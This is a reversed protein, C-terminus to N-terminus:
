CDPNRNARCFLKMLTGFCGNNPSSGKVGGDACDALDNSYCTCCRLSDWKYSRQADTYQQSACPLGYIIKRAYMEDLVALVNASKACHKTQNAYIKAMTEPDSIGETWQFEQEDIVSLGANVYNSLRRKSGKKTRFELGRMCDEGCNRFLSNVKNLGPRMSDLQELTYWIRGREKFTFDQLGQIEIVDTYAFFEVSKAKGGRSVSSGKLCSKKLTTAVTNVNDSSASSPASVRDNGVMKTDTDGGEHVNSPGTKRLRTDSDEPGTKGADDCVPTDADDVEM